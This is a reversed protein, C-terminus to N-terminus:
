RRRVLARPDIIFDEATMVSGAIIMLALLLLLPSFTATTVFGILVAWASYSINLGMARAPGIANIASYYALYSLSGALATLALLGVVNLEAAITPVLNVSGTVPLIVVAYFLASTMQRITIAVDPDVNESMGWSSIVAESGWGLTCGLALFFGVSNLTFSDSSILGVFISAIVCLFFGFVGLKTLRDKLFIFALMAGVAPYMASIVATPGSGIQGIAMIYCTMGLPGGCLAALMIVRGSRTKLAEVIKKAKGRSALIAFLILFSFADHFFTAVLPGFTEHGAFVNTALIVGILVTDIGWSFGSFLGFAFGSRRGPRTVATTM